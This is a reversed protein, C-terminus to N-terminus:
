ASLVIIFGTGINEETTVQIGGGHGKVVIDDALSLGLGTGQGMPKTTFFPQSIKDHISEPIGSEQTSFQM